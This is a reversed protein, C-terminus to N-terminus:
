KSSGKKKLRKCIDRIQYFVRTKADFDGECDITATVPNPPLRKWVQRLFATYNNGTAKLPVLRIGSQWEKEVRKTLWNPLNEAQKEIPTGTLDLGLYRHALGIACIIWRRRERSVTNLCREWVFNYPRNAVLWYIDPLKGFYEGGDALWHVCVIRLQDEARLVRVSFGRISIFRSNEFLNEWAVTDLRRFGGHLDVDSRLRKESKLVAAAKKFNEKSVALDIDGCVRLYDDPYYSSVSFGKFLISEIGNELLKRRALILKEELVCNFLTQWKIIEPRNEM